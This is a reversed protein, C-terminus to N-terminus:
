EVLQVIQRKGLRVHRVEPKEHSARNGNAFKVRLGVHLWPVPM